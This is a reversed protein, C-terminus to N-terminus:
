RLREESVGLGGFLVGCVEELRGGTWAGGELGLGEGESGKMHDLLCLPFSLHDDM